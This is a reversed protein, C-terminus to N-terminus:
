GDLDFTTPHRPEYLLIQSGGPVVMSITRGWRQEGIEGAFTVGKAALDAMTADLDDCTFSLEHRGSEEPDAGHIAVESPPSRFILWGGGADGSPWGLVDSFFARTGDPDEAYVISHTGTIM